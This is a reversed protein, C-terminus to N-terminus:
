THSLSDLWHDIIPELTAGYYPRSLGPISDAISAGQSVQHSLYHDLERVEAFTAHGPHMANIADTLELHEDRSTIFDSTGYMVLAAATVPKWASAPDHSAVQQMYVDSAPYSVFPRCEPRSALISALRQREILLRFGCEAKLSMDREISDPKLEQLRLQRRLNSLEYEYWGIGVTSLVAIGRIPTGGDNPNALLPAEIGGISHGILFVHATDVWSYTRIADLAARYGALETNFDVGTCPGGESDGVGLKEVRVTAYGRRTLHYMLDRYASVGAPQDISYCGIGGILMVTPHRRGDLPRTIVVRQTGGVASVATYAVDFETSSERPRERGIFATQQAVGAREFVIPVHTGVRVLRLAALAEAVNRVTDRAIRVLVDNQKVGAASAASAPVINVVLAGRPIGRAVLSDPVEALSAGLQIRRPLESPGRDAFQYFQTSLWFSEGHHERYPPQSSVVYRWGPHEEVNPYGAHAQLPFRAVDDRELTDTVGDASEVLGLGHLMAGVRLFDTVRADRLADIEALPTLTLLKSQASAISQAGIGVLKARLATAALTEAGVDRARTVEIRHLAVSGPDSSLRAHIAGVDGSADFQITVKSSTSEVRHLALTAVRTHLAGRLAREAARINLMMPRKASDGSLVRGESLGAAAVSDSPMAPLSARSAATHLLASHAFVAAAVAAAILM